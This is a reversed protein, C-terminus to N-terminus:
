ISGGAWNWLGLIGIEIGGKGLCVKVVEMM